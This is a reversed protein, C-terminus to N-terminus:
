KETAHAERGREAPPVPTVPPHGDLGSTEVVYFLKENANYAVLSVRAGKDLTGGAAELRCPLQFLEGSIARVSVLGFKDDVPLVVEGTSGLFEHRRRAYTESLPVYRTLLGAMVRTFLLSGLAAIPISLLWPQQSQENHLYSNTAFGVAGWSLLLVMMLISLPVRGIGFWSLVAMWTGGHSAHSAHPDTVFTVDADGHLGADLAPQADVDADADPEGFSWGSLAYMGLYVLALAFPVIFILNYWNLLWEMTM